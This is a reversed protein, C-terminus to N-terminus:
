ISNKKQEVTSFCSATAAQQLREGERGRVTNRKELPATPEKSNKRLVIRTFWTADRLTRSIGNLTVFHTDYFSFYLQANNGHVTMNATFSLLKRKVLSNRHFPITWDLM